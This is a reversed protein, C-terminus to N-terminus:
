LSRHLSLLSRLLKVSEPVRGTAAIIDAIDRKLENYLEPHERKLEEIDIEAAKQKMAKMLKRNEQNDLAVDEMEYNPDNMAIKKLARLENDKLNILKNKYKDIM